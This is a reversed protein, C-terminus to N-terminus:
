PKMGPQQPKIVPNFDTVDGNHPNIVRVNEGPKLPESFGTRYRLMYSIGQEQMSEIWNAVREANRIAFEEPDDGLPTKSASLSRIETLTGFAVKKDHNKPKGILVEGDPLTVISKQYIQYAAVEPDVALQQRLRQRQRDDLDSIDRDERWLGYKEPDARDIAIFDQRFEVLDPSEAIRDFLPKRKPQSM